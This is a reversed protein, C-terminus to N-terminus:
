RRGSRGCGPRVCRTRPARRRGAAGPARSRPRLGRGIRPRAAQQVGPRSAARAPRVRAMRTRAPRTVLVAPTALAAGVGGADSGVARAADGVAGARGGGVGGGGAGGRADRDLAHRSWEQAADGTLRRAAGPLGRTRWRGPPLVDHLAPFPDLPGVVGVGDLAQLASDLDLVREGAVAGLLEPTEEVLPRVHGRQAGAGAVLGHLLDPGPELGDVQAAPLDGGVGVERALHVGVLAQIRNVADRLDHARDVGRQHTGVLDVVGVAVVLDVPHHRDDGVHLGAEAPCRFTNSSVFAIISAPAAPTWRSSWSALSFFHPWMTPLTRSGVDHATRLRTAARSAASTLPTGVIMMARVSASEASM